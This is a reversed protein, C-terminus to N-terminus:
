KAAETKVKKRLVRYWLKRGGISSKIMWGTGAGTIMGLVGLWVPGLLPFFGPERSYVVGLTGFYASCVTPLFSYAGTSGSADAYADWLAFTYICPYFMLWQYNAKQIAEAIHGNFSLVIVENINANANICFELGLFLLGKLLRGNIIQGFGPFAISWLVAELPSKM